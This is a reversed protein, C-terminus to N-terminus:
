TIVDAPILLVTYTELGPLDLVVWTNRALDQKGLTPRLTTRPLRRSHTARGSSPETAPLLPRSVFSTRSVSSTLGSPHRLSKDM